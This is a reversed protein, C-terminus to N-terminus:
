KGPAVSVRTIGIDCATVEVFASPLVNMRLLFVNDTRGIEIEM